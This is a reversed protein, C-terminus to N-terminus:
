GATLSTGPHHVDNSVVLCLGPAVFYPPALSQADECSWGEKSCVHLSMRCGDSLLNEVGDGWAECLQHTMMTSIGHKKKASLLLHVNTDNTLPSEKPTSPSRTKASRVLTLTETSPVEFAVTELGPRPM